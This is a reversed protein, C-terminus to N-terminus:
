IDAALTAKKKQTILPFFVGWRAFIHAMRLPPFTM